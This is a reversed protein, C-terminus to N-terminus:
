MAVLTVNPYSFFEKHRGDDAVFDLYEEYNYLYAAAAFIGNDVICVMNEVFPTPLIKEAGDKLIALKKDAFSAGIALGSSVHNIYKGM